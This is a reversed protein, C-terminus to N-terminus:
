VIADVLPPIRSLVPVGTLEELHDRRRLTTDSIEFLLALGCGLFIGGFLGAIGFLYLPLNSPASPTFPRDIVKVRKDQEFIGLSGTIRAKENRLLLDDYLDRKIKLDRELRSFESSNVGYGATQNELETVMQKLSKIEERLGDVKSRALQLNELQSVLLPQDSRNTSEDAHLPASSAIVWLQDIDITQETRALINQREEELRRLNRLAGQIRSHKDTYRARSLALEGRIRVIQEEIRGLVPNTKSLQQDLGGLSRTAGAMEAKRESLRQKLKALRAINGLHLEPLENAHQNKFDALATEAIDLAQQRQKLHESLFQSSDKMSSREPALLQEVFQKSVAELTEKMGEPNSSKYDIRILDMGAMKVTLANSLEAIVEDHKQASTESNILGREEAVTGLIHRSHLLTKLADIREKLMFSVALDELFPNMKATEQILMSTHSSYHKPSLVGVLLGIIPLLLIPLAITYRRRWAGALIHFIRHTLSNV